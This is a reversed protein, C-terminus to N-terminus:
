QNTCLCLDPATVCRGSCTCCIEGASCACTSTATCERGVCIGRGILCECGGTGDCDVAVSCMDNVAADPRSADVTPDIVGADPQATACLNGNCPSAGTASAPCDCNDDGNCDAFGPACVCEGTNAECIQGSGCVVADTSCIGNSCETPTCPGTSACIPAGHQCSGDSCTGSGTCPDGDDCFAGTLRNTQCSVSGDTSRVCFADLCDSGACDIPDEAVCVGTDCRARSCPDATPCARGNADVNAAYVCVGEPCTASQCPVVPCDSPEACSPPLECGTEGCIQGDPCLSVNAVNACGGDRTCFDETCPNDDNCLDNSPATQCGVGVVCLGTVCQGEGQCLDDNGEHTCGDQAESCADTTCAITDDCSPPSGAVCVGNPTCREEGNCFLDDACDADSTCATGSGADASGADARASGADRGAAADMGPDPPALDLVLGCGSGLIAAAMLLSSRMVSDDAM